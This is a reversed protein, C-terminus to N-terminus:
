DEKIEKFYMNIENIVAITLYVSIATLIVNFIM